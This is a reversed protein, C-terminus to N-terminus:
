IKETKGVTANPSVEVTETYQVLDIKCDDGIKVIRGTVKPATVAEIDIMDCEIENSIVVKGDTKRFFKMLWASLNQICRKRITLTSGGISGIESISNEININIKEANILGPCRIGGSANITEAEIDENVKISGATELNVCKLGKEFKASGACKVEGTAYFKGGCKFSGAIKVNHAAIDESFGCSGAIKMKDTCEISDGSAAGSISITKCKIAGQLKGSGSIGVNEYEGAAIMGSGAIKMDM